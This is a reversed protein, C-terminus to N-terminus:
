KPCMACPCSYKVYLTSRTTHYSLLSHIYLLDTATCLPVSLCVNATIIYDPTSEETSMLLLIKSITSYLFIAFM